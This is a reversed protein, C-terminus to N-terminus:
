VNAAINGVEVGEPIVCELHSYSDAKIMVLRDKVQLSLFEGYSKIIGSYKAGSKLFVIASTGQVIIVEGIKLYRPQEAAEQLTEIANDAKNTDQVSYIVEEESM